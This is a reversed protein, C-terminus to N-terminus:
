CIIFNQINEASIQLLLKMESFYITKKMNNFDAQLKESFFYKKLMKAKEQFIIVYHLVKNVIEKLLFIILFESFLHNKEKAWCVFKWISKNIVAKHVKERFKIIKVKCIVKKKFQNIVLLHEASKKQQCAAQAQQIM